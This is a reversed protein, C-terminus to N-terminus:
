EAHVSGFPRYVLKEIEFSSCGMEDRKRKTKKCREEEREAIL